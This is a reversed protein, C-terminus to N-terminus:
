QGGWVIESKLGYSKSTFCIKFGIKEDIADFKKLSEVSAINQETNKLIINDWVIREKRKDWKYKAEEESKYHLFVIEVDDLVGIPCNTQKREELYKKNKSLEWPIFSLEENIYKHLNSCFKVYDDAFFYTGITPSLYPLGFYRYVSAGWCNNSIITFDQRNLKKRRTKAFFLNNINRIKIRINRIRDKITRFLLKKDNKWLWILYKVKEM